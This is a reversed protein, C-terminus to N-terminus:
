HTTSRSVAMVQTSELLTLLMKLLLLTQTPRGAVAEVVMLAAIMTMQVAAVEATSAAVEAVAVPMGAPEGQEERDSRGLLERAAAMQIVLAVVPFRRAVAVAVARALDVLLLRLGVVPLVPQVRTDVAVEAVELL